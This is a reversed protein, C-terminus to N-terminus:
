GGYQLGNPVTARSSGGRNQSLLALLMAQTGANSAGSLGGAWANASGVQGAAKANGAQSVASGYGEAGRMLLDNAASTAAMTNSAVFRGAGTTNDAAAGTTALDGRLLTNTAETGANILPTLTALKTSTNTKYTDLARGFAENFKTGAYDTGYRVAAKAAAGGFASGRSAASRELAKQGEALAFQYGPDSSLNDGTFSFAPGNSLDSLDKTAKEGYVKSTNVALENRGRAAMLQDNARESTDAVITNAAPLAYGLNNVGTEAAQQTLQGAHMAADAQTQAATTAADAQKKAGFISAGVGAAGLIGMIAATTGVM